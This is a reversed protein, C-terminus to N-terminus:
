KDYKQPQHTIVIKPFDEKTFVVFFYQKDDRLMINFQPRNRKILQSELILAEIESNTEQWDVKEAQNLMKVIRSDTSRSNFYSGVRNRLNSAKGIYLVEGNNKRFFYVGSKTPIDKRAPKNM